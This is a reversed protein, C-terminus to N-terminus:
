RRRRRRSQQSSSPTKPGPWARRLGPRCGPLRGAAPRDPCVSGESRAPRQRHVPHWSKWREQDRAFAVVACDQVQRGRDDTVEGLISTVRETLLLKVESIPNKGDFETPTDIVDQGDVTVSKLVHTPPLGTIRFLRKGPSVSQIEFSWDPNITSTGPLSM